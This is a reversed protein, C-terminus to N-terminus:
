MSARRSFTRSVAGSRFFSKYLFSNQEQAAGPATLPSGAVFLSEPSLLNAKRGGFVSPSRLLNLM